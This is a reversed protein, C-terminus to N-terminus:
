FQHQPFPFRFLLNLPYPSLEVFQIDEGVVHNALLGEMMKPTLPDFPEGFNSVRQFVIIFLDIHGTLCKMSGLLHEEGDWVNYIAALKM